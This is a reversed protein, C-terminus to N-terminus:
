AAKNADDLITNRGGRKKGSSGVGLKRADPKKAVDPSDKRADKQKTKAKRADPKKAVDPPIKRADKQKAEAGLLASAFQSEVEAEQTVASEESPKEALRKRASRSIRGPSTDAVKRKGGSGKAQARRRKGAAPAVEGDGDVEVEAAQVGSVTYHGRAKQFKDEVEGEVLSRSSAALVSVKSAKEGSREEVRHVGDPPFAASAKKFM